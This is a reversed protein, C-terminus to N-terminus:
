RCPGSLLAGLFRNTRSRGEAMKCLVQMLALVEVVALVFGSWVHQSATRPVNTAAPRSWSDPGRSERAHRELALVTGSGTM